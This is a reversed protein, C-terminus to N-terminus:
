HPLIIRPRNMEEDLNCAMCQMHDADEEEMEYITHPTGAVMAAAEFARAHRECLVLVNDEISCIFKTETM